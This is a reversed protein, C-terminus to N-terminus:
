MLCTMYNSYQNLRKDIKYSIYERDASSQRLKIVEEIERVEPLNENFDLYLASTVSKTEFMDDFEIPAHSFLTKFVYPVQFQTGTVTWKGKKKGNVEDDSYLAEYVADNVLYM